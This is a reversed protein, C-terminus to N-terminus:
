SAARSARHRAWWSLRPATATCVAQGFAELRAENEVDGYAGLLQETVAAVAPDPYRMLTATAAVVRTLPERVAVAAHKSARRERSLLEAAQGM